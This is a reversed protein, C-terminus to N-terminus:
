IQARAITDAVIKDLARERLSAKACDVSGLAHRVPGRHGELHEVCLEDRRRAGHEAKLALNVDDSPDAV